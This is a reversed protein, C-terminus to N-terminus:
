LHKGGTGTRLWILGTQTYVDWKRFVRRVIIKGDIGLDEFHDREMLNRWWFWTYLEVGGGGGGVGEGLNKFFDGGGM